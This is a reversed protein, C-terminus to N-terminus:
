ASAFWPVVFGHEDRPLDLMRRPIPRVKSMPAERRANGQGNLEDDNMTTRGKRMGNEQRVKRQKPRPQALRWSEANARHPALPKSTSQDAKLLKSMARTFAAKSVGDADAEREFVGPAYSDSPNPSVNRRTRRLGALRSSSRRPRPRRQPATLTSGGDRGEYVFFGSEACAFCRGRERTNSKRSPSPACTTTSRGATRTRRGSSSSAPAPGNHWDTSGSLGSGTNM